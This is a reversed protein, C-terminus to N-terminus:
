QKPLYNLPNVPKGSRRIEFHLLTENNDNRGMEAIKQGASVSGGESVLRASNHAYASLMQESHRIIILEGYGILGNGSYVVQGAAVAVVDQGHSGVIDVGNRAPDGEKFTRLLRGQTPWRWAGPDASATVSPAPPVAKPLPTTAPPPTAKPPKASPAKSAPAPAPTTRTASRPPPVATTSAVTRPPPTLRLVQDPHIVWPSSIGNWAAIDRYDMGYRFAIAALNDGKRVRYL